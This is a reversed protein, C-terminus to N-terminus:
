QRKGVKARRGSEQLRDREKSAAWPLALMNGSEAAGELM